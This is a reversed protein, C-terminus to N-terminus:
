KGLHPCISEIVGLFHTDICDIKNMFAIRPVGYKEKQRSDSESQPQVGAVACLVGVAGDLVRLPHEMEAMFGLHEPKELLNIPHNMEAVIGFKTKWGCNIAASTITMGREREQKMCGTIATREYVVGMTQAVGAAYLNRETTTKGPHIHAATERNLKHKL